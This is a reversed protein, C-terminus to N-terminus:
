RRRIRTCTWLDWSLQRCLHGLRLLMRFTWRNLVGLRALRFALKVPVNAFRILALAAYLRSRVLWRRHYPAPGDVRRGVGAARSDADSNAARPRPISPVSSM